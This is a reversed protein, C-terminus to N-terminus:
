EPIIDGTNLDVLRGSKLRHPRPAPQQLPQAPQAGGLTQLWRQTVEQAKATREPGEPLAEVEAIGAKVAQPSLLPLAKAIEKKGTSGLLGANAGALLSDVLQEGKAVEKLQDRQAKNQTGKLRENSIEVEQKRLDSSVKFNAATMNNRNDARKNRGQELLLGLAQTAQQKQIQQAQKREEPSRFEGIGAREFSRGISNAAINPDSAFSGLIDFIDTFKFSSDDKDASAELKQISKIVAKSKKPDNIVPSALIQQVQEQETEEQTPPQAAQGQQSLLIASEEPTRFIGGQTIGPPPLQDSAPGQVDRIGQFQPDQQVPNVTAGVIDALSDPLFGHAM